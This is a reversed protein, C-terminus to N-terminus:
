TLEEYQFAEEAFLEIDQYFWLILRCWALHNEAFWGGLNGMRFPIAKCWELNLAKIGDLHGDIHKCFATLQRRSSLWAPFLTHTAKGCGLFFLHVPGEVFDTM